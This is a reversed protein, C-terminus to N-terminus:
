AELSITAESRNVRQTLKKWLEEWTGILIINKEKYALRWYNEDIKTFKM